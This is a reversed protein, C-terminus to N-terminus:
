ETQKRQFEEGETWITAGFKGRSEGDSPIPAWLRNLEVPKLQGLNSVFQSWIRSLGALVARRRRRKSEMLFVFSAASLKYSRRIM